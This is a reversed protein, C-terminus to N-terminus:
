FKKSHTVRKLQASVMKLRILLIELSTQNANSEVPNSQFAKNKHQCFQLFFFFSIFHM